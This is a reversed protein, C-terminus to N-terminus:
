CQGLNAQGNLPKLPSNEFIKPIEGPRSGMNLVVSLLVNEVFARDLNADTTTSPTRLGKM